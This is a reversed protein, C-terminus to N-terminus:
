NKQLQKECKNKWGSTGFCSIGQTKTKSNIMNVEVWDDDLHFIFNKTLVFEYKDAMNMFQIHKRKIGLGDAV